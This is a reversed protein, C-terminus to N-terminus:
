DRKDRIKWIRDIEKNECIEAYVDAVVNLEAEKTISNLVARDIRTARGDLTSIREAIFRLYKPTYVSSGQLIHEISARQKALQIM